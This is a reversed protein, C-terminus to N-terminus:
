GRLQSTELHMTHATGRPILIESGPLLTASQPTPTQTPSVSETWEVRCTGSEVRLMRNQERNPHFQPGLSENPKLRGVHLQIEADCILPHAMNRNEIATQALRNFVYVRKLSPSATWRDYWKMIRSHFIAFVIWLLVLTFFINGIMRLDLWSSMPKITIHSPYLLHVFSHTQKDQTGLCLDMKLVPKM